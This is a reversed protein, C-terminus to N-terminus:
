AKNVPEAVPVPVQAGDGGHHSDAGDDQEPERLGWPRLDSTYKLTIYRKILFQREKRLHSMALDLISSAFCIRESALLFFPLGTSTSSITSVLGTTLLLVPPPNRSMMFCGVRLIWRSMMYKLQNLVAKMMYPRAREHCFRVPPKNRFKMMPVMRSKGALVRAM